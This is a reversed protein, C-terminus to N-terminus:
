GCRPRTWGSCAPSASRTASRRRAAPTRPSSTTRGCRWCRTRNWRAPPAQAAAPVHRLRHGREGRARRRDLRRGRRSHGGPQRGARYPPTPSVTWSPPRRHGPPTASGCWGAAHRAQEFTEAVVLGIIQGYHRVETDQLPVWNTAGAPRTASLALPNFPTYVALVGPSAEAASTDMTEITGRGVTSLVLYGHCVGDVEYDAAYKASGTVKLRGDVRNVSGGLPSREAM